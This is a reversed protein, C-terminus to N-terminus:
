ILPQRPIIMGCLLGVLIARTGSDAIIDKHGTISQPEFIYWGGILAVVFVVGIREILSVKRQLLWAVNKHV